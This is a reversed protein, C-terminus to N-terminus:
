NFLESKLDEEEQLRNMERIANERSNPFLSYHYNELVGSHSFVGYYDRFKDGCDVFEVYFDDTADIVNKPLKYNM